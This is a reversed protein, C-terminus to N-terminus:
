QLLSREVRELRSKLTGDLINGGYRVLMGGLIEPDTNWQFELRGSILRGLSATIEGQEETSIPRATVVEVVVIAAARDALETFAAAVEGLLPIRGRQFLLKLFKKAVEPLEMATALALLASLRQEENFMPSLLANHLDRNSDFNIALTELQAAVEQAPTKGSSRGAANGGFEREVNFLFARAYKSAIKGIGKAM